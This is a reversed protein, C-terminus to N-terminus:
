KWNTYSSIHGSFKTSKIQLDNEKCFDILARTEDGLINEDVIIKANKSFFKKLKELAFITPRYANCDIYVLSILLKNFGYLNDKNEVFEPITKVIDGKILTITDKMKNSHVFEQIYDFNDLENNTTKILHPSIKLDEDTFSEFTDFGFYKRFKQQQYKNILAGFIIANRGRGTGLEIIHGPVEIIENFIDNISLIYDVQIKSIIKNDWNINSIQNFAKRLINRIFIKLKIM